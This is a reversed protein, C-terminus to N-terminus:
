KCKKSTTLPPVTYWVLPPDMIESIKPWNEVWFQMFIFFFCFQVPPACIGPVERPDALAFEYLDIFARHQTCTQSTYSLWTCNSTCHEVVFYSQRSAITFSVSQEWHWKEHGYRMNEPTVASTLVRQHGKIDSLYRLLYCTPLYTHWIVCLVRPIEEGSCDM